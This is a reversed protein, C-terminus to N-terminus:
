RADGCLVINEIEKRVLTKEPAAMLGEALAQIAAWREPDNCIEAVTGLSKQIQEKNRYNLTMRLADSRSISSEAQQGIDAIWFNVQIANPSVNPPLGAEALPALGALNRAHQANRRKNEDTWVATVYEFIATVVDETVTIVNQAPDIGIAARKAEAVPGAVAVATWVPSDVGDSAIDTNGCWGNDEEYIACSHAVKDNDNVAVYCHGAEHFSAAVESTM